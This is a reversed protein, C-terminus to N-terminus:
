VSSGQFDRASFSVTRVGDAEAIDPPYRSKYKRPKTPSIACKMFQQWSPRVGSELPRSLTFVISSHSRM